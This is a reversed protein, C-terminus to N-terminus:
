AAKFGYRFPVGAKDHDSFIQKSYPTLDEISRKFLIRKKELGKDVSNTRQFVRPQRLFTLRLSSGKNKPDHWRSSCCGLAKEM